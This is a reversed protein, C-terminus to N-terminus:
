SGHATFQRRPEDPMPPMDLEFALRYVHVPQEIGKMAVRGRDVYSVDEVRQALHTIAESVLVEGPKAISCLRAALNIASGRYGGEIAGGPRGRHRGRGAAAARARKPDAGRM